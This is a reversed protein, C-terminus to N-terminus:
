EEEVHARAINVVFKIKFTPRLGQFGSLITSDPILMMLGGVYFCLFIESYHKSTGVAINVVPHRM